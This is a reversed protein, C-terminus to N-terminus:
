CLANTYRILKRGSRGQSFMRRDKMPLTRPLRRNAVGDAAILNRLWHLIPKAIVATKTHRTLIAHRHLTDIEEM